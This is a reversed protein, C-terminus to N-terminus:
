LDQLHELFKKAWSEIREEQGYPDNVITLTQGFVTGGHSQIFNRIHEGSRATYYYRDDGLAIIGAPKGALDTDKCTKKCYVYMEPNLQGEVGGTNWSGSGFLLVDGRALDEATAQECRQVEVETDPSHQKIYDAIVSVVYETHGSTSAYIIHLSKM